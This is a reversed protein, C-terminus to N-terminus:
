SRAVDQEACTSYCFDRLKITFADLDNDVCASLGRGPNDPFERQLFAHYRDMVRTDGPSAGCTAILRVELLRLVQLEVSGLAGWLAPRQMIQDLMTDVHVLLKTSTSTEQWGLYLKAILKTWDQERQEWRKWMADLDQKRKELDQKRKKRQRQEGLVVGRDFGHERGERYFTTAIYIFWAVLLIFGGVGGLIQFPTPEM